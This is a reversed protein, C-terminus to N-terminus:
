KSGIIWNFKPMISLLSIVLYKVEWEQFKQDQLDKRWEKVLKVNNLSLIM